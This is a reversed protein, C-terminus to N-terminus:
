FGVVVGSSPPVNGVSLDPYVNALGEIGARMDVNMWGLTESAAPLVYENCRKDFESAGLEGIRELAYIPVFFMEFKCPDIGGDEDGDPQDWHTMGVGVYRMLVDGLHRSLQSRILANGAMDVITTKTKALNSDLDEYAIAQDFYGVNEVFERNSASTLGVIKIGKNRKALGYALGLSTKSSASVIVVQESDYCGNVKLMDWLCFSTYYLPSLLVRAVDGSKDYGPESLVRSYHNYLPPLAQRHSSSDTFAGESVKDPRLIAESSPPFYGYVRDGVPLEPCLSEVVDALGWVPILGWTSGDDGYPPFFQWYGLMDGAAGYTMNNSTFSFLDVELRIEGPKLARREREVIKISTLTSKKIQLEKEM